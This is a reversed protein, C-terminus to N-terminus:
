CSLVSESCAGKPMTRCHPLRPSTRRRWRQTPRAQAARPAFGALPQKASLAASSQCGPLAQSWLLSAAAALNHVHKKVRENSSRSAAYKSLRLREVFKVRDRPRVHAECTKCRAVEKFKPPHERLLQPRKNLSCCGARGCSSGHRRRSTYQACTPVEHICAISIHTCIFLFWGCTVRGM